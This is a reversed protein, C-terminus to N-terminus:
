ARQPSPGYANADDDGELIGLNILWWVFGVGPILTLLLWWRSQGRDHVRKAAVAMAMWGLAVGAIGGLILRAPSFMGEIDPVLDPSFQRGESQAMQQMMAVMHDAFSGSLLVMVVAGIIGGIFTYAPHTLAFLAAFVALAPMMLTMVQRMEAQTPQDQPLGAPDAPAMAVSLELFPQMMFYYIVSGIVALTLAGLWFSGRGIRGNWSFLLDM